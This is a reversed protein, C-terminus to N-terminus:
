SRLPDNEFIIRHFIHMTSSFARTLNLLLKIYQLYSNKEKVTVGIPFYRYSIVLFQSKRSVEPLFVYHPNVTDKPHESEPFTHNM